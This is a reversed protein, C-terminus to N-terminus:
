CDPGGVTDLTYRDMRQSSYVGQYETEVLLSSPPTPQWYHPQFHLGCDGTRRCRGFDFYTHKYRIGNVSYRCTQGADPGEACAGNSQSSGYHRLGDLWVTTSGPQVTSDRRSHCSDRLHLCGVVLSEMVHELHQQPSGSGGNGLLIPGPSRDM